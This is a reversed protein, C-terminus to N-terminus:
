MWAWNDMPYAEELAAVPASMAERMGRINERLTWLPPLGDFWSIGSLPVRNRWKMFELLTIEETGPHNAEFWTQFKDVKQRYTLEDGFRAGEKFERRSTIKVIDSISVYGSAHMSNRWVPFSLEKPKEYAAWLPGELRALERNEVIRPSTGEGLVYIRSRRDISYDQPKMRRHIFSLQLKLENFELSDAEEASLLMWAKKFVARTAEWETELFVRRPDKTEPPDKELLEPFIVEAKRTGSNGRFFIEPSALGLGGINQPAVFFMGRPFMGRFTERFYRIFYQDLGIGETVSLLGEKVDRFQLAKNLANLKGPVPNAQISEGTSGKTFPSVLRVKLVDLQKLFVGKRTHVKQVIQEVFTGHTLSLVSKDSHVGGVGIFHYLWRLHDKTGVALLDDGVVEWKRSRTGSQQRALIESVAMMATLAIKSGPEGMLVGNRTEHSVTGTPDFLLRKSTLYHSAQIVYDYQERSLVGRELMQDAMGTLIANALNWPYFDTANKLDASLLWMPKEQGDIGLEPTM